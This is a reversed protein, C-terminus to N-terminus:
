LHLYLKCTSFSIGRVNDLIRLKLQGNLWVAKEFDTQPEVLFNAVGSDFGTDFDKDRPLTAIRKEKDWCLWEVGLLTLALLRYHGDVLTKDQNVSIPHLLGERKISEALTKIFGQRRERRRPDNPNM